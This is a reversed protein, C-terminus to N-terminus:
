RPPTLPFQTTTTQTEPDYVPDTTNITAQNSVTMDFVAWTDSSNIGSNQSPTTQCFGRLPLFLFIVFAAIAAAWTARKNM